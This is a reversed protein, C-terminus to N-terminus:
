GACQESWDIIIMSKTEYAHCTLEIGSNLTLLVTNHNKAYGSDIDIIGCSRVRWTGNQGYKYYKGERVPWSNRLDLNPIHLLIYSEDKPATEIPKWVMNGGDPFITSQSGQTRLYGAPPRLLFMKHRYLYGTDLAVAVIPYNPYQDLHYIIVCCRGDRTVWQSGIPFKKKYDQEESM